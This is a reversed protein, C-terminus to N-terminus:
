NSRLLELNDFINGIVEIDKAFMLKHAWNGNKTPELCIFSDRDYIVKCIIEKKVWQSIITGKVIDGEYIEKKNKDYMGTFQGVTKSNVKIFPFYEGNHKEVIYDCDDKGCDICDDYHIYGGYVWEKNDVSKGRFKYVRM